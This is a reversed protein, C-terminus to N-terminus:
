SKTVLIQDTADSEALFDMNVRRRLSDKAELQAVLRESASDSDQKAAVDIRSGVPLWLTARRNLLDPHKILQRGLSPQRQRLCSSSIKTERGPPWYRVSRSWKIPSM